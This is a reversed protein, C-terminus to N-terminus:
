PGLIQLEIIEASFVNDNSPSPAERTYSLQSLIQRCHPLGPKSGQTPFIGQLLAHCGEGTNKGPSDWPCLFRAPKLGQPRLSNSVTSCNLVACLPKSYNHSFHHRGTRYRLLVHRYDTHSQICPPTSHRLFNYTRHEIINNNLTIQIRYGHTHWRHIPKQSM